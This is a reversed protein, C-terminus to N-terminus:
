QWWGQPLATLAAGDAAWTYTWCATGDDAAVRVRRYEPGEYQDLRPLLAAPDRLPVLLGPALTPRASPPASCV